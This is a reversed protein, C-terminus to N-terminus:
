RNQGEPIITIGCVSTWGLDAIGHSRNVAHRPQCIWSILSALRQRAHVREGDHLAFPYLRKKVRIDVGWAQEGGRVSFAGRTWRDIPTPARLPGHEVLDKLVSIQKTLTL